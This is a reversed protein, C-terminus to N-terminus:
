HLEGVKQMYEDILRAQDQETINKRLLEEALAVALATAEKRLAARAANVENAAARHADAKIKEAMEKANAIIKEREVEGERRIGAYIEDIEATAASLKADYEAFKAEADQRASKSEELQQAIGESRAAMANRIPKRVFFAILGFAVVFNIVRYIYDKLYNMEYDGAYLTSALALVMLPAAVLVVGKKMWTNTYM